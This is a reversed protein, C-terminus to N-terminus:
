VHRTQLQASILVLSNNTLAGSTVVGLMYAGNSPAAFDSGVGNAVASAPPESIEVTSGGVVTGLTLTMQDAAGAPAVPYLGVTFKITPKATNVAVQARLRLKQTKGNVSYDSSDFYLYPLVGLPNGSGSVLGGSVISVGSFGNAILYTGAERDNSIMQQAFLLTRYAVNNPSVLNTDAITKEEVGSGKVKNEEGLIANLAEIAANVKPHETNGKKGLTPISLKGM